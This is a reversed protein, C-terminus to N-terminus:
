TLVSFTATGPVFNSCGINNTTAYQDLTQWYKRDPDGLGVGHFNVVVPINWCGPAASVDNTCYSSTSDCIQADELWLNNPKTVFSYQNNYFTHTCDANRRYHVVVKVM